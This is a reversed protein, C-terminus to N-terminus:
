LTNIGTGLSSRPRPLRAQRTEFAIGWRSKIYFRDMLIVKLFSRVINPMRVSRLIAAFGEMIM